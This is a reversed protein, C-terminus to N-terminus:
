IFLCVFIPIEIIMHREKKVAKHLMPFITVVMLMMSGIRVDVRRTKM